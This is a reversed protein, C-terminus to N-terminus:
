MAGTQPSQYLPADAPHMLGAEREAYYVDDRVSTVEVTEGATTIEVTGGEIEHLPVLLRKLTARSISVSPVCEYFFMDDEETAHIRCSPMTQPYISHINDNKIITCATTDGAQRRDLKSLLTLINRQSLFVKETM